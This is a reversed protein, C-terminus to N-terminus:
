AGKTYGRIVQEALLSYRPGNPELRFCRENDSLYDIRIMLYKRPMIGIVKEAWELVCIGDGYLYDDVSRHRDQTYDRLDVMQVRAIGQEIARKVISEDLVGRFMDPFITVIDFFLPSKPEDM